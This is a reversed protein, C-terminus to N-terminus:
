KHPLIVIGRRFTPALMWGLLAGAVWVWSSVGKLPGLSILGYPCLWLLALVVFFALHGLYSKLGRYETAVEVWSSSLAFIAAFFFGTFAFATALRIPAFLESLGLLVTIGAMAGLGMMTSQWRFARGTRRLRRVYILLVLGWAAAMAVLSTVMKGAWSDIFPLPTPTQAALQATNLVGATGSEACL